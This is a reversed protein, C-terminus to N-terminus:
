RQASRRVQEYVEDPDGRGDVRRLVGREDYHAVLPETEDHYVRLRERVTEPNDDSRGQGRGLIRDAVVDDPVDILVAATLERGNDALADDLADAQAVTRPFGDLLVPCDGAGTIAERVMAVILEDPVLDGRDMYEAARRGLDTGQERAARLLDGTALWAYGLHERLRAAQTGKGSGPPGFLVVTPEMAGDDRSPLVACMFTMLCSSSGNLRIERSNM